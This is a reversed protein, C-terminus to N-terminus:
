TLIKIRLAHIEKPILDGVVRYVLQHCDLISLGLFQPSAIAVSFHGQGGTAGVHGRHQESDNTIILQNPALQQLRNELAAQQANHDLSAKQMM